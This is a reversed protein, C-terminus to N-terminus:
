IKSDLNNLINIFKLSIKPWYRQKVVLEFIRSDNWTKENIKTLHERLQFTFNKKKEIIYFENSL